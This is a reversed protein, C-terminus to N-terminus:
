FSTGYWNSITCYHLTQCSLAPPWVEVEWVGMLYLGAAAYGPKYIGLFGVSNFSVYQYECM